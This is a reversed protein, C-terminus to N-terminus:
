KLSNIWKLSVTMYFNPFIRQWAHIVKSIFGVYIRFNKKVVGKLIINSSQEANLWTVSKFSREITKKSKFAGLDLYKANDLIDTRVGAPHVCHFEVSSNSFEQALSETYGKIAFKSACYASQTPVAIIGYISSLNILHANKEKLLYPMFVTTGHVVGWYNVNFVKKTEDMDEPTASDIITRGANNFVLNVRNHRSIIENGAEKFAEYDSVDFTHLSIKSSSALEQIERSLDILNEPDIDCLALHCDYRALQLSLARGIGSAAGTIVAVKNEFEKKMM